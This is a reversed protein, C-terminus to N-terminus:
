SPEKDTVATDPDVVTAIVPSDDAFSECEFVIAVGPKLFRDVDEKTLVAVGEHHKKLLVAFHVWEPRDRLDYKMHQM